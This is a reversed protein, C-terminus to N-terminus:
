KLGLRNILWPLALEFCPGYRSELNNEITYKICLRTYDVAVEAAKDLSLGNILAALLCSGFVDGTGHFLGPLRQCLAENYIGTAADYAAAGLMTDDYYVGTLVVKGNNIESLRKVIDQVYAKTYPGETYPEGLMMAAETMNPIIIDAKECLRKMGQPFDAPFGPYLVGNDAMVPDCLILTNASKFDDFIKGVLNLQEFSGLYGSYIADFGLGLSKWHSAIPMIDETLDRYTYGTFGGTHTSLVATPLVSTEIGAASIIPLAVTLSCRGVCSIDHIALARKQRM